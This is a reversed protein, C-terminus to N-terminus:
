PARVILGVAAIREIPAYAAQELEEGFVDPDLEAYAYELGAREIWPRAERWFLDEGARQAAGTYLILRGGPALRELSERLIRVSLGAGFAGGGDRYARSAPDALYPPNALILEFRGPVSHLVDSHTFGVPADTAHGTHWAPSATPSGPAAPPAAKSGVSSSDAADPTLGALAANVRAFRLAQPNIDALVLRLGPPRGLLAAALIGGAGTGCGIDVVARTPPAPARPPGATSAASAATNLTFHAPKGSPAPGRARGSGRAPNAGPGALDAAAHGADPRPSTLVRAILAAFRYTDPGFFVSDPALTPYASHAFLLGAAGGSRAGPGRSVAHGPPAWAPVPLGLRAADLSSFRVRSLWEGGRAELADAACLWDWVAPPLLSRAFPRSWGFVGRLDSALGEVRANVRRHTEPTVTVFRYGESQLWRGLALLAAARPDPTPPRPSNM